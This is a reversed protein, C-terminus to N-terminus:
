FRHDSELFDSTNLIGANHSIAQYRLRFWRYRLGLVVVKTATFYYTDEHGYEERTAPNWLSISSCVYAFSSSRVCILGNYSGIISARYLNSMSPPKQVDLAQM